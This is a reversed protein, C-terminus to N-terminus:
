VPAAAAQELQGSVDGTVPDAHGAWAASPNLAALKRISARATEVDADFAPHPIRPGGKRGTQIDLTYVCDSILALRDSARFLGILGPAHGPLEIVEFGAVEDGEAVTAEIAVAGGDWAPLAKSFYLRGYGRLKRMNWYDRFPDSSEAAARDAAHCYVPAGLAPASGRHDADAHGLVVRKVGGMRACAARLAPAMAAIGADFVTVGGDDEILYVNMTKIPFGGRVLWVGPGVEETTVGHVGMMARTRANALTTLRAEAPSGAPPLLGLQRAISGSDVYADNHVILDDEVSVVDCGEIELQAHNPAFGQFSGPGAFTARARWRVATRTRGTTLELIEFSFDPFAAFLGSFYERVGLPAILDQVGVLRDIAGPRWCAVAADLDHAALAAFYRKAIDSTSAM